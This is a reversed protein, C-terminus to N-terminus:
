NVLRSIAATEIRRQGFVVSYAARLCVIGVLLADGPQRHARRRRRAM